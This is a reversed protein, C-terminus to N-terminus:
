RLAGSYVAKPNGHNCLEPVQQCLAAGAKDVLRHMLRGFEARDIGDAEHSKFGLLDEASVCDVLRSCSSLCHLLEGVPLRGSSRVDLMDAVRCPTLNLAHKM